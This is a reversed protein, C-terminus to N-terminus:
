ATPAIVNVTMTFRTQNSQHAWEVEGGLRGASRAVLPLGLGLGEPKSTVFPEFIEAAVDDPPGEGDDIVDIRLRGDSDRSIRVDVLDAAQMANLVLNTVAANLSAGDSVQFEYLRDDIQWNLEVCLHKATASLTRRVDEICQGVSQPVDDEQQGAAVLLLRRIHGETQELQGLAVSLTDGPDRCAQEHLEVAMRAGTISNGLQHALGGAVQHLLKQGQQRRLTAWLQQLQDSMRVVAKGLMGVEDYVGIPVSTEFKGEAIQNVQQQLRSLRRILRSAYLLTVSTLLIVTSLGTALPLSAARLRISRLEAEDFLVAVKAADDNVPSIRDFIRYRFEQDGIAILDDNARRKSGASDMSFAVASAPLRLSLQAVDGNARLTILETNTMEAISNLVPRDLRFRAQSLTLEIGQFRTALQDRAWRDGLVYSGVAVGLSALLAVALLPLLLRVRLSRFRDQL